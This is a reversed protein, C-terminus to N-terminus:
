VRNSPTVPVDDPLLESFEELIQKGGKEEWDRLAAKFDDITGRGQIAEDRAEDLRTKIKTGLRSNTPSYLGKIPSKQALPLLEQECEYIYRTDEPIPNYIVGEGAAMIQLASQLGPVNQAGAETFVYNGDEVTYEKGETGWNVQMYETTGFPASLYDVVSLLERIRAEDATKRFPTFGVTGYGM